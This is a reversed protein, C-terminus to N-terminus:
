DKEPDLAPRTAHAVVSIRDASGLTIIPLVFDFKMLVPLGIGSHRCRLGDRLVEDQMLYSDEVGQELECAASKLKSAASFVASRSAM